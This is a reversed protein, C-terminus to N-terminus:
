LINTSSNRNRMAKFHVEQVLETYLKKLVLSKMFNLTKHILIHKINIHGLQKGIQIIRM